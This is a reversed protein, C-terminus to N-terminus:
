QKPELRDLTQRIAKETQGYTARAAAMRGLPRESYTVDWYQHLTTRGDQWVLAHGPALRRVARYISQPAPVTGCNLYAYIADPDIRRPQGSDNAGPLLSRVLILEGAQAPDRYVIGGIINMCLRGPRSASQGCGAYGTESEDRWRPTQATRLAGMSPAAM